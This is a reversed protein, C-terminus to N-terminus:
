YIRFIARAGCCFFNLIFFSLFVWLFAAHFNVALDIGSEIERSERYAKGEIQGRQERSRKKGCECPM